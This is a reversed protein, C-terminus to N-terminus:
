GPCRAPRRAFPDRKRAHATKGEPQPEDPVFQGDVASHDPHKGVVSVSQWQYRNWVDRPTFEPSSDFPPLRLERLVNEVPTYDSPTTFGHINMARTSATDEELTFLAAAIHRAVNENAHPLAAFPWEPYLHTSLLLPFGSPHQPNLIKIRSMDLKGERAMAELVGSRVFGADAGGELVLKVVNDHPMGVQKLAANGPLRVGAQLLEYAEMQYGGLSEPAAAAIQKGKLDALKQLDSREARTFIVGGFSSLPVGNEEIILTALPASLRLQRSLLVFHAPNTLVFDIQKDSVARELEPYTYAEVVFDHQPIARKLAKGLPLWQQLTEPKPRYALVGIKVTQASVASAWLMGFICLMALLKRGISHM